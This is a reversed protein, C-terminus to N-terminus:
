RSGLLRLLVAVWALLSTRSVALHLGDTWLVDAGPPSEWLVIEAPGEAEEEEHAASADIRTGSGHTGIVM